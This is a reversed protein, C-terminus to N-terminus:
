IDDNTVDNTVGNTVDNTVGHESDFELRFMREAVLPSKTTGRELMWNPFRQKERAPGASHFRRGSLTRREAVEYWNLDM